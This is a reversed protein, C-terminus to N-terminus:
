GVCMGARLGCYMRVETYGPSYQIQGSVMNIGSNDSFVLQAYNDSSAVGVSFPAVHLHLATTSSFTNGRIITDIPVATTVMHENDVKLWALQAFDCDVISM